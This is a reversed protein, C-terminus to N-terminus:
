NINTEFLYTALRYDILFFRFGFFCWIFLYNFPTHTHTYTHTDFFFNSSAITLSFWFWWRWKESLFSILNFPYVWPFFCVYYHFWSIKSVCNSILTFFHSFYAIFSVGWLFQNSSFFHQYKHIDKWLCKLFSFRGGSLVIWSVVVTAVCSYSLSLWRHFFPNHICLKFTLSPLFVFVAPLNIM